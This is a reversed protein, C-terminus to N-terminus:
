GNDEEMGHGQRDCKREEDKRETERRQQVNNVRADLLTAM